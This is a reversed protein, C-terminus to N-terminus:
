GGGNRQGSNITVPDIVIWTAEARALLGGAHDYLASSTYAKRGDVGRSQGVVVYQAGPLPTAFVEATMRGLVMPRGPLLVSWGGPCDLAAWVVPVDVPAGPTWVAAVTGDRGPVPGAFLRLGDDREPGCTFCTPFPHDDLGAYTTGAAVESTVAGPAPAGFHGATVEAVLVGDAECRLTQGAPDDDGRLALPTDLPPPRRLTVTAVPNGTRERLEEALLGSIYGGNASRAPGRFRREVSITV